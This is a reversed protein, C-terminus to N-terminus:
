LFGKLAIRNNGTIEQLEHVGQVSLLGSAKDLRIAFRLAVRGRGGERTGGRRRGQCKLALERGREGGRGWDVWDRQLGPLRFVNFLIRSALSAM